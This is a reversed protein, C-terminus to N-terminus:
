IMEKLRLGYLTRRIITDEGETPTTLPVDGGGDSGDAGADRAKWRKLYLRLTCDTVAAPYTYRAIAIGTNHTAATSGNSGRVVTLYDTAADTAIRIYVQETDLLLTVGPSLGTLASVDIDTESADVAEAVTPVLPITVNTNGWTGAVDTVRYGSGYATITGQGHLLISRYPTGGYGDEDDLLYYDTDVTPTSTTASATSPRITISTVSQLDDRLRLTKGGTGDYKNTGIRPGFGSGFSSREMKEDILRSISELVALKRAVTVAPQTALVAAGNSLAYDDAEGVSAYCHPM